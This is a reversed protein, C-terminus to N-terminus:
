KKKRNRGQHEFAELETQVGEDGQWEMWEDLKKSLRQKIEAYAPDDALNTMEFFDAETDYLEEAPRQQYANVRAAAHPDTKAKEVWSGWMNDGDKTVANTFTVEPTLNRIYHYRGDRVSRIGYQESGNIIGRTTHIGYVYEKHTDKEGLLVPLYSKGELVEPIEAGAADLYTPLVDVYEIMADSVTGPAVKAPWRAVLGNRLGADYCTWKAFPFSSGQESTFIFLTNDALGHKDLLAMCEGVQSDLYTIEALYKAYNARTEPTDVWTPPLKLKAADYQSADGKDWPSHPENSCAFLCFPTDSAKCEGMFEDIAEMDPNNTGSYEFAFVEQPSIHRKGSLAVRYGLPKLYQVVSKTGDKVFTHNPYAGSRVPYLGTYVNHRTPSCMPAAEFSNTFLMGESALRDINPTFAQGGYTGIDERTCDDGIIFLFNPKEAAQLSSCMAFAVTATALVLLNRVLKM